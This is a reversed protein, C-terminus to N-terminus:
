IKFSISEDNILNRRFQASKEVLLKSLLSKINAPLNTDAFIEQIQAVDELGNFLVNKIIEILNKILNKATEQDIQLSESTSQLLENSLEEKDRQMFCESLLKNLYDKNPAKLLHLILESEIQM